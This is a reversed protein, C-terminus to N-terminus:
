SFLDRTMGTLVALILVVSSLEQQRSARSSSTVTAPTSVPIAMMSALPVRGSFFFYNSVPNDHSETNSRRPTLARGHDNAPQARYYPISYGPYEDVSSCIFSPLCVYHFKM